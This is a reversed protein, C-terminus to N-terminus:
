ENEVCTSNKDELSSLFKCKQFLTSQIKYKKIKLIYGLTKITSALISPIQFEVLDEFGGFRSDALSEVRGKCM